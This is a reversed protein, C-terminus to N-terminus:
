KPRARHKRKRVRGLAVWSRASSEACGMCSCAAGFVFIRVQSVPWGLGICLLHLFSYTMWKSHMPGPQIGVGLDSAVLLRGRRISNLETCRARPSSKGDLGQECRFCRIFGISVTRPAGSNFGARLRNLQKSSTFLIYTGRDFVTVVSNKYQQGGQGVDPTIDYTKKGPNHRPLRRSLSSSFLRLLCLLPVFRIRSVCSLSYDTLVNCGLTRRFVPVDVEM